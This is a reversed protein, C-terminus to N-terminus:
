CACLMIIQYTKKIYIYIYICVTLYQGRKFQAKCRRLGNARAKHFESSRRSRWPIDLEHGDQDGWFVEAM